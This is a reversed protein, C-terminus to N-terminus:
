ACRPRITASSKVKAQGFDVPRSQHRPRAFGGRAVFRHRAFLQDRPQARQLGVAHVVGARGLRQNVVQLHMLDLELHLVALQALRVRRHFFRALLEGIEIVV